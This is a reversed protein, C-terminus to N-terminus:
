KETLHVNSGFEFLKRFFVSTFKEVIDNWEPLPIGNVPLISSEKGAEVPLAPNVICILKDPELTAM